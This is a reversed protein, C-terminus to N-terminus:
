QEGHRIDALTELYSQRSDQISAEDLSFGHRDAAHTFIIRDAANMNELLQLIQCLVRYHYIEYYLGCGPMADNEIRQIVSDACLSDGRQNTWPHQIFGPKTM